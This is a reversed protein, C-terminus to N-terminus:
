KAIPKPKLGMGHQTETMSPLSSWDLEDVLRHAQDIAAAIAADRLERTIDMPQANIFHMDTIGVFGFIARLYPEQFDFAHFPSRESYDGGRTTVCIMRKGHILGVPQGNENYTFAYGPQIISDIYYKLAYPIGFNWMPASVVYIDSSFFHSILTEIQQWSEQHRKDIPRRTMLLYKTEINIGAASPVDATFLDLTDVGMEPHKLRLADIFAAAICLTNSEQQRPTAVIHLLKVVIDKSSSQFPHRMPMFEGDGPHQSPSLVRSAPGAPSDGIRAQQSDSNGRVVKIPTRM